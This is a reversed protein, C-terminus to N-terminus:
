LAGETHEKMRTPAYSAHRAIAKISIHEKMCRPRMSSIGKSGRVRSNGRHPHSAPAERM